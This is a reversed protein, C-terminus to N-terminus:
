ACWAGFSFFWYLIIFSLKLVFFFSLSVIGWVFPLIQLSVSPSISLAVDRKRNGTLQHLSLPPPPPTHHPYNHYRTEFDSVECLCLPNYSASSKMDSREEKASAVLCVFFADDRHIPAQIGRQDTRPSIFGCAPTSPTHSPQNHARWIHIVSHRVKFLDWFSLCSLFSISCVTKHQWKPNRLLETHSM